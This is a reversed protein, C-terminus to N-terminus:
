QGYRDAGTVLRRQWGDYAVVQWEEGGDNIEKGDSTAGNGKWLVASEVIGRGDKSDQQEPQKGGAVCNSANPGVTAAHDGGAGLM